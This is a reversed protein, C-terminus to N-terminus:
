RQSRAHRELPYSHARLDGLRFSVRRASGSNVTDTSALTVGTASTPGCPPPGSGGPLLGGSGSRDADVHTRLPKRSESVIM